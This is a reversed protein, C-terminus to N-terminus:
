PFKTHTKKIEADNNQQVRIKEVGAFQKIQDIPIFPHRCYKQLLKM